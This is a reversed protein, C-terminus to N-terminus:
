RNLVNPPPEIGLRKLHMEDGARNLEWYRMRDSGILEGREGDEGEWRVIRRPAAREVDFKLKPRDPSVVTLREVQFSGAPVTVTEVTASRTIEATSWALDRHGLRAEALAPLYPRRRTQGPRLDDGLLGRVQIWLTDATLGDAPYPLSRTRDAEGDFYSFSSERIGDADFLLQHFVQGCWEQATFSIKTPAGPPRGGQPDVHVFASTMVSYPYVGTQFTRRHNVKIVSYLDSAPHKGPDAKVRLNRSFTETVYILTARGQRLEGYRPQQLRYIAVEAQGDGWTKWFETTDVVAPPEPPATPSGCACITMVTAILCRQATM